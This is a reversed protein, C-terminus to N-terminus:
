LQKYQVNNSNYIYQGPTVGMFRKFHRNLHSQDVFGADLAAHAISVGSSLLRKAHRVRLQVLYAHPPFGVTKQFVRLLHFPSLGTVESLNQLSVNEAYNGELYELARRVAGHEKGLPHLAPRDKAHRRILHSLMFLCFSERELASAPTELFLHLKLIIGALYKDQIVPEPFYPTNQFRDFPDTIAQQLLSIGPYLMRYTWGTECGAQGTHVEGPNIVVISGAPAHHRSKHYAFSEVGKEIVGIAFGEHIHPSFSHTIYTASLLELNGLDGAHWFKAKEKTEKVPM